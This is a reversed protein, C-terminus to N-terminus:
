ITFALYFSLSLGIASIEWNCFTCQDLTFEFPLLIEFFLDTNHLWNIKLFNFWQVLFFWDQIGPFPRIATELSLFNLFWFFPFFLCEFDHNPSLEGYTNRWVFQSFTLWDKISKNNVNSNTDLSNYWNTAM